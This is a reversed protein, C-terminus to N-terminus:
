MDLTSMPKTSTEFDSIEGCCRRLRESVDEQWMAGSHRLSLTADDKEALAAGNKDWGDFRRTRRAKEPVPNALTGLRSPFQSFRLVISPNGRAYFRTAKGASHNGASLTCHHRVTEARENEPCSSAIWNARLLSDRVSATWGATGSRFDDTGAYSCELIAANRNGGRM